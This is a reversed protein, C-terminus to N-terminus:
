LRFTVSEMRRDFYPEGIVPIGGPRPFEDPAGITILEGVRLKMLVDLKCKM